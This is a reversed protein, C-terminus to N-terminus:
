WFKVGWDEAKQDVYEVADETLEATHQKIDEKTEDWSEQVDDVATNWSQHVDQLGDSLSYEDDALVRGGAALTTMGAEGAGDRLDSGFDVLDEGTDWLYDDARILSDGLIDGVEQGIQSGVFAGGAAGVVALPIAAPGGAIGPIGGLLAGGKAGLLGGTFAGGAESLGQLGARYSQRFGPMDEAEDEAWQERAGNFFTIGDSIPGTFRTIWKTGDSSELLEEALRKLGEHGADVGDAATGATGWDADDDIPPTPGVQTSSAPIAAPVILNPDFSDPSGVNTGALAAAGSGSFDPIDDNVGASGHLAELRRAVRSELDRWDANFQSVDQNHQAIDQRLQSDEDIEDDSIIGLVDIRSVLLRGQLLWAQARLSESVQQLPRGETAFDQLASGASDMTDAWDQVSDPVSDMASHVTEQSEPQQYASELGGWTNRVDNMSAEVDSCASKLGSASADLDGWPVDVETPFLVEAGAGGSPAGPDHM